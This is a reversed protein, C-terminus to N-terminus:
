LLGRRVVAALHAFHKGRHVQRALGVGGLHGIRAARVPPLGGGRLDHGKESRLIGPKEGMRAAQLRQLEHLAKYIGREISSEYRILKGYTDKYQFDESFEEGLTKEKPKGSFTKDFEIVRFENVYDKLIQYRIEFLEYEGNFTTIDYIKSMEM